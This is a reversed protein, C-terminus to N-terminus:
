PRAAPGGAVQNRGNRKANYLQADAAEILTPPAGDKHAVVAAVGISVTVFGRASLEHPEHLANIATRIREAAVVAAALDAGPLIVVFEEGGYRAVLDTDRVTQKMADAVHRLCEDGGAHGYHDNYLKFHDLDIMAVAIPSQARVARLWEHDLVEALRRRNALRQRQAAGPGLTEKRIITGTGDPLWIRTVRTRESEYLLEAPRGDVVPLGSTIEM